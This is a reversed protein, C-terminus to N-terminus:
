TPTGSSIMATQNATERQRVSAPLTRVRISTMVMTIPIPGHSCTAPIFVTTSGHRRKFYRGRSFWASGLRIESYVDNISAIAAAIHNLVTHKTGRARRTTAVRTRAERSGFGEACKQPLSRLLM